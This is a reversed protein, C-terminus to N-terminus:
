SAWVLSGKRSQRDQSDVTLEKSFSFSLKTYRLLHSLQCHDPLQINKYNLIYYTCQSSERDVLYEYYLVQELISRYNLAFLGM